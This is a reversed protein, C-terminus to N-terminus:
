RTYPNDNWEAHDAEAKEVWGYQRGVCFMMDWLADASLPEPVLRHAVTKYDMARAGRESETCACLWKFGNVEIERFHASEMAIGISKQVLLNIGQEIAAGPLLNSQSAFASFEAETITHPLAYLKLKFIALRDDESPLPIHIHTKFLHRSARDLAWPRNTTGVITVGPYRTLTSLESITDAPGNNSHFFTEVEDLIIVSPANEQAIALLAHIIQKTSSQGDVDCSRVLYVSSEKSEKAISMALTTKGTGSIGHLLISRPFYRALHPAVSPVSTSSLLMRRAEICGVIMDVDKMSDPDIKFDEIIKRHATTIDAHPSKEKQGTKSQTRVVDKSAPAVHMHTPVVALHSPAAVSNAPALTKHDVPPNSREM